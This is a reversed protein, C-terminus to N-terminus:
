RYSELNKGGRLLMKLISIRGGRVERVAGWITEEGCNKKGGWEPNKLGEKEL